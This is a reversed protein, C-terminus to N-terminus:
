RLDKQGMEFPGSPMEGHSVIIVDGVPERGLISITSIPFSFPPHPRPHGHGYWENLGGVIVGGGYYGSGGGGGNVDPTGGAGTTVTTVRGAPSLSRFRRKKKSREGRGMAPTSSQNVPNNDVSDATDFFGNGIGVGGGGGGGGAPTSPAGGMMYASSSFRATDRRIRRIQRERDIDRKEIEEKSLTEMKPAFSEGLNEHDVRWGADQGEAAYNWQVDGLPHLGGSDFVDKKYRYIADHIGHALAPVWEGGIGMDACTLQAFEEATGAPHQLSWEFRDSFHKNHLTIDMTLMCRSADELDHPNDDVSSPMAQATVKILEDINQTTSAPGQVDSRKTQGTLKPPIKFGGFSSSSENAPASEIGEPSPFMPHLAIAAFEELQQRIQQSIQMATAVANPLDLDNVLGLAFQDPTLLAEYLNWCFFDRFRLPGVMEPVRYASAMPDVGFESSNHPLPFAPHPTFPAIDLELRIPVLVVPLLSQAKFQEDSRIPHSVPHDAFTPLRLLNKNKSSSPSSQFHARGSM